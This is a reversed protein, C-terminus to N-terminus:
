GVVNISIDKAGELLHAAAKARVAEWDGDLAIVPTLPENVGWGVLTNGEGYCLSLEQRAPSYYIVGPWLLTNSSAETEDIGLGGNVPFSSVQGRWSSNLARGRLPLVAALAAATRPSTEELLTAAQRVSDFVVEVKRGKNTRYAAPTTQDAARRFLIPQGGTERLAAATKALESLDGEIHGLPTLENPVIHGGFRANGYCFAIERAPPCYVVSGPHQYAVPSEVEDIDVPIHELMRFMDGSLQAHVATGEFPLAAWFADSLKPALDDNMRFRVVTGNVDIEVFRV